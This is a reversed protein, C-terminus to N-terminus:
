DCGWLHGLYEASEAATAGFVSQTMVPANEPLYLIAKRPKAFVKRIEDVEPAYHWNGTEWNVVSEEAADPDNLVFMAAIVNARVYRVITTHPRVKTQIAVLVTREPLDPLNAFDAPPLWVTGLTPFPSPLAVTGPLYLSGTPFTPFEDAM